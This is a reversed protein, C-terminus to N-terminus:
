IEENQIGKVQAIEAQGWCTQYDETDIHKYDVDYYEGQMALELAEDETEANVKMIMDDYSKSLIPVVIEFTKM